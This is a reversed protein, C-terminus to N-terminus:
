QCLKIAVMHTAPNPILNGKYYDMSYQYAVKIHGQVVFGTM